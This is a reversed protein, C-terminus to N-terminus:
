SKAENKQKKIATCIQDGYYNNAYNCQQSAYPIHRKIFRKIINM